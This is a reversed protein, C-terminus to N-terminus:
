TRKERLERWALGVFVAPLVFASLRRFMQGWVWGQGDFTRFIDLTYFIRLFVFQPVDLPTQWTANDMLDDANGQPVQPEMVGLPHNLLVAIIGLAVLGGFERPSRDRSAIPALGLMIFMMAPIMLRPGMSWGGWWMYYSINYYYYGAVCALGVAALMRPYGRTKLMIVLGTLGLLIWPYWFLMSRYPHVTLFWIAASKPYTAGMLGQAMGERFRINDEYQYPITPEGFISISYAVFLSIPIAGAVAAILTNRVGQAPTAGDATFARALFIVGVGIAGLGFLFDSLMAFGCLFGIAASQGINLPTCNYRALLLLAGLLFAIGPVYPMFITSYGFLMSGFFAVATAVLARRPEAGLHIMLRWFLVITIAAPISVSWLRLLYDAWEFDHAFGLTRWTWYFPLAMLGLGIIKDSYFHGEYFAKDGTEYALHYDDIIFTGQDVVAFVLALRTNVNWGTLPHYVLLAPIFVALALWLAARRHAPPFPPPRRCATIDSMAFVPNTGPRQSAVAEHVTFWKITKTPM